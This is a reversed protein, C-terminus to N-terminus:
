IARLDQHEGYFARYLSYAEQEPEGNEATIAETEKEGKKEPKKGAEKAAEVFYRKRLDQTTM